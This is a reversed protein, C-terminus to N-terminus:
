GFIQAKAGTAGQRFSILAFLGGWQPAAEKYQTM